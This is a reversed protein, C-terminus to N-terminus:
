GKLEFLVALAAQRDGFEIRMEGLVGVVKAQDVAHVGVNGAMGLGERLQM